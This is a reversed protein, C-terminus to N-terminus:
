GGDMPSGPKGIGIIQRYFIYDHFPLLYRRLHLFSSIVMIVPREPAPFDMAMFLM